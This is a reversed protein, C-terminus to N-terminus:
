SNQGFDAFKLQFTKFFLDFYKGIVKEPFCCCCCCCFLVVVVRSPLDTRQYFLGGGGGPAKDDKQLFSFRM